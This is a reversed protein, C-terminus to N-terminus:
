VYTSKFYVKEINYVFEMYKLEIGLRPGSFNVRKYLLIQGLKVM